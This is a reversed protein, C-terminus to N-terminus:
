ALLIDAIQQLRGQYEARTLLTQEMNVAKFRVKAQPQLQALIDLDCSIVTGLTMYGGGSVADRHLVIPQRGAPIQISGIPYCADVINSPDSGAGFPPIRERFTLKGGGQFRYGIRDSETSVTWIDSFFGAIAEATLREIYLGPLVRLEVDKLLVPLLSVPVTLGLRAVACHETVPLCDGAILNRGAVGGLSGLAYTSRCGLQYPVDIGGAIALYSRAGATSYELKLIQGRRVMFSTNHPMVVGDLRLTMTAGCVAVVTDQEFGLEPGLLTCELGACDATNGVLLNAVTLAFRDLAGSPPIGLHYYGERGGDQVSSALGPKVVKIAM